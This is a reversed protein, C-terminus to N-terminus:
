DEADIEIAALMGVAAAQEAARRWAEAQTGGDAVAVNEGNV